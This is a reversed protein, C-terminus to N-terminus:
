DSNKRPPHAELYDWLEGGKRSVLEEVARGVLYVSGIVFVVSGDERAIESAADIAQIPDPVLLPAEGSDRSLYGSLARAPVSPNRGGHVETVITQVRGQSQLIPEITETLDEKQTMGVVLVHRESALRGLDHALSESNHAASLILDAGSWQVRDMTRGPWVVDTEMEKWGVRSGIVSAM